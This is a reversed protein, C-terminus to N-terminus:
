GDFSPLPPDSVPQLQRLPADLLRKGQFAKSATYIRIKDPTSAVWKICFGYPDAGFNLFSGEGHGGESGHTM